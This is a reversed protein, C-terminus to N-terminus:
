LDSGLLVDLKEMRLNDEFEGQLIGEKVRRTVQRYLIAFYGIRSQRIRCEEVIEDLKLLVENITNM